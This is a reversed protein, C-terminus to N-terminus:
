FYADSHCPEDLLESKYDPPFPAQPPLCARQWDEPELELKWALYTANCEDRYRKILMARHMWSLRAWEKRSVGYEPRWAPRFCHIMASQPTACLFPM